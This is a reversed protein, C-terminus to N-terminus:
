RGANSAADMLGQYLHYDFPTQMSGLGSSEKEGSKTIPNASITHVTGDPSKKSITTGQNLTSLLAALNKQGFFTDAAKVKPNEPDIIRAFTQLAGALTDINKKDSLWNGAKEWFGVPQPTAQPQSQTMYQSLLPGLNGASFMNEENM